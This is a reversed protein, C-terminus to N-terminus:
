TVGVLLMFNRLRVFEGHKMNKSEKFTEEIIIEQNDLLTADADMRLISNNSCLKVQPCELKYEECVERIVDKITLFRNM